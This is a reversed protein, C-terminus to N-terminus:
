HEPQKLEKLCLKIVEQLRWSFLSSKKGEQEKKACMQWINLNQADKIYEARTQVWWLVWVTVKGFLHRVLHSNIATAIQIAFSDSMRRITATTSEGSEGQASCFTQRRGPAASMMWGSPGLAEKQTARRHAKEMGAYCTYMVNQDVM